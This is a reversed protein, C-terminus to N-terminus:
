LRIKIPIEFYIKGIKLRYAMVVRPNIRIWFGRYHQKTVMESWDAPLSKLKFLWLNLAYTGKWPDLGIFLGYNWIGLYPECKGFRVPM